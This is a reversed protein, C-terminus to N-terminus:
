IWISWEEALMAGLEQMMVAESETELVEKDRHDDKCLFSFIDRLLQKSTSWNMTGVLATVRKLKEAKDMM